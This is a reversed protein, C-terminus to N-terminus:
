VAIYKEIKNLLDNMAFPKALFDNAGAEKTSRELDRSASILIVPIDRTDKMAKLKRCIDRGDKGSMCIDLIILQAKNQQLKALVSGDSTTDVEYDCYELMMKIADLIALDDDAVLIKSRVNELANFKGSVM